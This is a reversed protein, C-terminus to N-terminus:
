KTPEVPQALYELLDALEKEPLQEFGEPMISTAQSQMRRIDKRQVVHQKGAADLMEVTTQSETDLRGSITQGDRTQVIWLKFNGEVSRNPDIINLLIEHRPNKGIGSLDPGVRGGTGAFMHCAVCNKEYVVKGAAVDGRREALPMLRDILKQKDADAPRAGAALLKRAREAAADDPAVAVLQQAQEASLDGRAVTGKEIATLLAAHWPGRRMLVDIAAKRASPPLANWKKLIAAGTTDQRSLALSSTLEAALAPPSQPSVLKLIADVSPASDSLSLLRRAATARAAVDTSEDSLSAILEKGAAASEGAFLEGRGMRQALTMLRARNDSSLSASLARLAEDLRADAKAPAADAPWGALLGDLLSMAAGEGVGAATALTTALSEASPGGQAYHATVVRVMSELAGADKDLPELRVDDFWATGRSLGWGGLLCNITLESREGSNFSTQVRTWDTTGTVANTAVRTGGQLEHVNLLAGLGTGRALDRTRISGSLRYDTRPTVRVVISVSSDAGTQGVPRL